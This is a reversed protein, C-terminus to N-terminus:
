KMSGIHGTIARLCAEGTQAPKPYFGDSALYVRVATTGFVIRTDHRDNSRLRNLSTPLTLAPDNFRVAYVEVKWATAAVYRARYGEVVDETLRARLAPGNPLDYTPGNPYEVTLRISALTPPRTGIWPNERLGPGMVFGPSAPELRCGEPLREAPVTLASLPHTPQDSQAAPPLWAAAVFGASLAIATRGSATM